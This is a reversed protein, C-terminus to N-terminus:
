DYPVGMYQSKAELSHPVPKSYFLSIQKRSKDYSIDTIDFSMRPLTIAISKYLDPDGELRTVYKEKPGFIIPVRVRNLETGTEDYRIMTINNFMNGFVNVYKRLLSFYFTQDSLM